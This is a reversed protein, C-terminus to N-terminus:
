GDDYSIDTRTINRLEGDWGLRPWGAPLTSYPPLTYVGDCVGDSPCQLECMGFVKCYCDKARPCHVPQKGFVMHWSYELVRGSLADELPTGLVWERLAEYDKRPRQRIKWRTAGFQACCSAGVIEPVPKGPFLELFAHKYFEGAHIAERHKGQQAIPRIEAPCGLNWACRLNVYGEQELYPLQFRRLVPLGDYDPDDNHWQFRTPHIFLVNDPLDDYNDIIFRHHM